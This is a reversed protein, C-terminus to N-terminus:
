RHSACPAYAEAKRTKKIWGGDVIGSYDDVFCAIMDYM